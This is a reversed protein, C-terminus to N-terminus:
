MERTLIGYPRVDFIDKEPDQLPSIWYPFDKRIGSSDPPIITLHEPDPDVRNQLVMQYTKGEYSFKNGYHKAVKELAPSTYIGKGYLHRTGVKLGDELIPDM